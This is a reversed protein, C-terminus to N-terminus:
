RGASRLVQPLFVRGGPRVVLPLYVAAGQPVGLYHSTDSVMLRPGVPPLAEASGVNAYPGLEATATATCVVTQEPALVTSPCSVVLGQDDTVELEALAVNGTNQVTYTWTVTEGARVYPGPPQDADRGNTRKELTMGPLSGFYHSPDTDTLREGSPVVTGTATALNSYQGAQAVGAGTCIMSAGVVLSDQPCTVEVGQDDIVALDALQADGANTVLYEWNVPDGALIHAGPPTDADLGNTRKQVDLSPELAMGLYHSADSATVTGGDPSLGGVTGINAHQGANAVGSAECLMTQDPALWTAPCLVAVDQDDVITVGTLTVNGTNTVAYTWVVDLGVLVLPGPPTDADRGNTFKQIAIAPESGFYHSPDQASVEDGAPATARATGVNAYPGPQASGSARCTLAEGPALAPRPCSVDIGQDDTVKLNTLPVNGTNRVAYSWTVGKGVRVFLGLAEDADRGNTRKELAIAPDSGYYHSWDSDSVQAEGPATAMATAKNSYQGAQATGSATCVM